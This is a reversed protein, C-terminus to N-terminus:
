QQTALVDWLRGSSPSFGMEVYPVGFEGTEVLLDDDYAERATAPVDVGALGERLSLDTRTATSRFGLYPVDGISPLLTIAKSSRALTQVKSQGSM